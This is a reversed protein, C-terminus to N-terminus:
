CKPRSPGRSCPVIRCMVCSKAARARGILAVTAVVAGWVSAWIGPAGVAIFSIGDQKKLCFTVAPVVVLFLLIAGLIM